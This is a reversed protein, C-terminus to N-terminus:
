TATPKIMQLLSLLCADQVAVTYRHTAVSTSQSAVPLPMLSCGCCSGCHCVLQQLTWLRDRLYSAKCCENIVEGKMTHRDTALSTM